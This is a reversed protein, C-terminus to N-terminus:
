GLAQPAPDSHRGPQLKPESFSKHNYSLMTIYDLCLREGIGYGTEGSAVSYTVHRRARLVTLVSGIEFLRTSYFSSSAARDQDSRRRRHTPADPKFYYESSIVELNITSGPKYPAVVVDEVNM